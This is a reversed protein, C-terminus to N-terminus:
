RADGFLVFFGAVSLVLVLLALGLAFRDTLAEASLRPEAPPPRRPPAAGGRDASADQEVPEVLEIGATAIGPEDPAGTDAGEAEIAEIAVYPEDANAAALERLRADRPDHFTIPTAGLLIEDGDRLARRSTAKGNVVVGNKSGDDRVVVSDESVELRAHQRSCEADDVRLFADEARGLVLSESAEPLELETGAFSGAEVRLTRPAPPLLRRGAITADAPSAGRAVPVGSAVEIRFPGIRVLETPRLARPRDPALKADGVVTGNTSGEDVIAYGAGSVRLTAHVPSVSAHPLLVDSSAARGIAIRAQDLELQSTSSTGDPHIARITLRVGM